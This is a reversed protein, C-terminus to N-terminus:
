IGTANWIPLERLCAIGGVAIAVAYPLGRESLFRHVFALQGDAAKFRRRVIIAILALIGGAVCTWFLFTPLAQSIGTWVTAAAIVKADGGGFVGLCFLTWCIVFAAFGVGLHLAIATWPLGCAFAAVPYLAVALVSIRNPIEMTALDSAAAWLLLCAFIAIFVIALM